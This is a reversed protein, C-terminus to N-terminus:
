DNLDSEFEMEFKKHLVFDKGKMKTEFRSVREFIEVPKKLIILM